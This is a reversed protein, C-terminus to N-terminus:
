HFLDMLVYLEIGMNKFFNTISDFLSIIEVFGLLTKNKYIPVTTKISLM